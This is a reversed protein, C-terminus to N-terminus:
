DEPIADTRATAAGVLLRTLEDVRDQDGALEEPRPPCLRLTALMRAVQEITVPMYAIPPMVHDPRPQRRTPRRGDRCVWCPMHSRAPQIQENGCGRCYLGTGPM